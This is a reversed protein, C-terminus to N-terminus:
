KNPIGIFGGFRGQNSKAQCDTITKTCTTDSGAYRCERGKFIWPCEHSARLTPIQMDLRWPYDCRLEAFAGVIRAAIVRLRFIINSDASTPYDALALRITILRGTINQASAELYASITRDVDPLKVTARTLEGKDNYQVAGFMGAGGTYTEGDFTVDDADAAFRLTISDNVALAYLWVAGSEAGLSLAWQIENASLARAM